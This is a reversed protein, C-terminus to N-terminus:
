RPTLFSAGFRMMMRVFQTRNACNSKALISKTQANVTSVSRNRRDAIEPNTLGEGIADVLSAEASTLGFAQRIRTKDCMVPLSTDTSCLVFGGFLGNGIEDSKQLPTIEICLPIETHSLISEKRPRGGFRGHERWDSMLRDLQSQGSRDAIRLQGGQGVRLLRYTEQQRRFEENRAVIMARSDLVCVGIALEDIASLVRQYRSQLQRIPISLDLAKAVHPLVQSLFYREKADLPNRAANLQVSFLSLWRNDKNMVGAARHFIGLRMLKQVHEQQKLEDVSSALLTDDLLVIEDDDHTHKRIIAQDRAEMDQCKSLYVSIADSSYFGSHIPATLRHDGESDEWEFIISGQAGVRDVLQDLAAGWRGPDAVADYIKLTLDQIEDSM